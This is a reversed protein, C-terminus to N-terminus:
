APVGGIKYSRKKAALKIDVWEEKIDTIALTCRWESFM